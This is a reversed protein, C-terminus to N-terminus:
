KVQQTSSKRKRSGTPNAFIPKKSRRGKQIVEKLNKWRLNMTQQTIIEKDYLYRKPILEFEKHTLQVSQLCDKCVLPLSSHPTRKHFVKQIDIGCQLCNDKMNFRENCEECLKMRTTERQYSDDGDCCEKRCQFCTYYNRCDWCISSIHKTDLYSGCRLCAEKTQRLCGVHNPCYQKGGWHSKTFESTEGKWLCYYASCCELCKECLTYSVGKKGLFDLTYNRVTSQCKECRNLYSLVLSSVDKPMHVQLEEEITKKQREKTIYQDDDLAEFMRIKSSKEANFEVGKRQDIAIQIGIIKGRYLTGAGRVTKIKKQNLDFGDMPECAEFRFPRILKVDFCHQKLREFLELLEESENYVDSFILYSKEDNTIAVHIAKIFCDHLHNFFAIVIADARGKLPVYNFCDRNAKTLAQHAVRLITVLNRLKIPIQGIQLKKLVQSPELEKTNM